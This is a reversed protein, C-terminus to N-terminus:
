DETTRRMADAAARGEAHVRARLEAPDAPAPEARDVPVEGAHFREQEDVVSRAEDLSRRLEEARPDRTPELSEAPGGSRGRRRLLRVAAFATGLGSLLAVLRRM